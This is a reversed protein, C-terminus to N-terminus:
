IKLFISLGREIEILTFISPIGNYLLAFVCNQGIKNLIKSNGAALGMGIPINQPLELGVFRSSNKRGNTDQKSSTKTFPIITLPCLITTRKRHM